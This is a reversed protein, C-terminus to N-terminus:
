HESLIIESARLGIAMAPANTNGSVITPMISTDVVRLREVGRVKLKPDLVSGADAGMRATGCIHMAVGGLSIANALVDEDNKISPGPDIEEVIWPALAPQQGLARLFRFLSVASIRDIEASFHNADIFPKQAADPSVIRLEGQSEPRTFYGLINLGPFRDVGIGNEHERLSYLTVGLQADAHELGPRTKVFAGVEHAAHTLAGRSFVAYQLLSKLLGPGSLSQNCSGSTVRYQTKLYRHERLNRGVNPADVVAPLGLSQLLSGPGIGSLQLLKPSEIAGASLIVERAAHVTRSGSGNVLTVGVARRGEFNVRVVKTECLVDLNSRGRIPTLFARAASFRKGHWTTSPQYGIGGEAVATVDNMDAVRRVGLQGAAGIVAECLGSGAPHVSIKLPGGVGRWTGPGLAHDELEVFCRGIEDWGWGTCGLAAWTNYDLPAGRVYVMGNISSSGGIARGKLWVEQPRNGGPSAAYDWVHANGPALLRGIGRPMRILPSKDDPGAEVLLVSTSADKSLRNALVCGSSGAGVIIYDYTNRM